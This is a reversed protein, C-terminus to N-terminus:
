TTSWNFIRRFFGLKVRLEVPSEENYM